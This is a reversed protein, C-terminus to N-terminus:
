KSGGWNGDPILAEQEEATLKKKGEVSLTPKVDSIDPREIAMLALAGGKGGRKGMKKIATVGATKQVTVIEEYLLGKVDDDDYGASRFAEQAQALVETNVTPKAYRSLKLERGDGTPILETGEKLMATIIGSKIRGILEGLKPYEDAMWLAMKPRPMALLTELVREVVVEVVRDGGPGAQPAMPLSLTTSTKAKEM